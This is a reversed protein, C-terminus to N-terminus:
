LNESRGFPYIFSNLCSEKNQQNKIKEFLLDNELLEKGM